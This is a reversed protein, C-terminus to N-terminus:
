AGPLPGVDFSAHKPLTKAGLAPLMLGLVRDRVWCSARGQWQGVRGLRWSETTIGSTRQYREAAFAALAPKWTM